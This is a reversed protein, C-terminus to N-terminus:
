TLTVNDGNQIEVILKVFEEDSVCQKRYFGDLIKELRALEERQINLFLEDPETKEGENYINSSIKSKTTALIGLIIETKISQDM